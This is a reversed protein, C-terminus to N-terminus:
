KFNTEIRFNETVDKWHVIVRQSDPAREFPKTGDYHVYTNIQYDVMTRYGYVNSGFQQTLPSTNTALIGTFCKRTALELNAEEMKQIVAINEQPTLKASTGM